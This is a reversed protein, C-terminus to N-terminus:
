KKEASKLITEAYYNKVDAGDRLTEDYAARLIQERQSRLQNRILQQVGPDNLSRQGAPEKGNLKIIRYAIRTSPNVIPLM